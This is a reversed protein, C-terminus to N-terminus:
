IVGDYLIKSASVTTIYTRKAKGNLYYALQIEVTRKDDLKLTDEQTLYCVGTNDEITFDDHYKTIVIRGKQAIDLRKIDIGEPLNILTLPIDTGRMLSAM